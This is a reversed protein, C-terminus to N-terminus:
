SQPQALNPGKRASVLFANSRVGILLSYIVTELAYYWIHVHPNRCIRHQRFDLQTEFVPSVVKDLAGRILGFHNFCVMTSVCFILLLKGM